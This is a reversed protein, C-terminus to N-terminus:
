KTHEADDERADNYPCSPEEVKAMSHLYKKFYRHGSLLQTMYFDVEGFKQSTWQNVDKILRATWRGRSENEWRRQWASMTDKKIQEIARKNNESTKKLEWLKKREYALLDIPINGSIVLIADGSM